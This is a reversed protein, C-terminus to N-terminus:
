ENINGNLVVTELSKYKEYKRNLYVPANKYLKSLIQYPKKTMSLKKMKINKLFTM